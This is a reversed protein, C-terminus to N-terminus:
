LRKGRLEYRGSGHRTLGGLGVARIDVRMLGPQYHQWYDGPMTVDHQDYSVNLETISAVVEGRENYLRQNLAFPSANMEAPREIVIAEDTRPAFLELAKPEAKVVLAGAVAAPGVLLCQLFSRRDASM